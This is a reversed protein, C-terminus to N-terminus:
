CGISIQETKKLKLKFLNEYFDPRYSVSYHLNILM